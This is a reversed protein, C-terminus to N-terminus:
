RYKYKYLVISYKKKQVKWNNKINIVKHRITTTTKFIFYPLGLPTYHFSDLEDKSSNNIILM